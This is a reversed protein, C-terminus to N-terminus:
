HLQLVSNKFKIFKCTFGCATYSRKRNFILLVQQEPLVVNWTVTDPSIQQLIHQIYGDSTMDWYIYIAQVNFSNKSMSNLLYITLILDVQKM